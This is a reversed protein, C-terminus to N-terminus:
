LGKIVVENAWDIISSEISDLYIQTTALSEHGLADSIVAIPVNNTKAITAWSHRSVYTTLPISLGAMTGIKKLAKNVKRLATEYQLREDNGPNTIIPLLFHTTQTSYKDILDNIQKVLKIRLQQGTKHRRYTLVGEKVDSKKLFAADVFSMGRCYFLFIFIDRAFELNPHASLNMYRVKKIENTPIARKRTKEMGTFVTSFPNRDFTIGEKVARNYVARMIRMYFSVTNRSLGDTLLSSQYDEMLTHNFHRFAIDVEGRFRRFSNLAAKYNKATGVRNLQKLREIIGETYTLFFTEGQIRRFEQLVDDCSYTHGRATFGEIIKLLTNIDSGIKKNVNQLFVDREMNTSALTRKNVEDWEFQYVKIGSFIQRYKKDHTVLYVIRGPSAESDSPCFKIRVTTM